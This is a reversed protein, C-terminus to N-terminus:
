KKKEKCKWIVVIICLSFLFDFSKQIQNSLWLITWHPIHVSEGFVTGTESEQCGCTCPCVYSDWISRRRDAIHQVTSIQSRMSWCLDIGTERECWRRCLWQREKRHSSIAGSNQTRRRCRPSSVSIEPPRKFRRYVECTKRRPVLRIVSIRRWVLVWTGQDTRTMYEHCRM